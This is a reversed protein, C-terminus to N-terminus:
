LVIFADTLVALTVIFTGVDPIGVGNEQLVGHFDERRVFRYCQGCFVKYYNILSAMTCLCDVVLLRVLNSLQFVRICSLM